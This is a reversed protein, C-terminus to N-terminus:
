GAGCVSYLASNKTSSLNLFFKKEVCNKHWAMLVWLIGSPVWTITPEIFMPYILIDFGQDIRFNRQFETVEQFM